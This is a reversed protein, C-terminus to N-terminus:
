PTAVDKPELPQYPVRTLQLFGGSKMVIRAYVDRMAPLSTQLLADTATVNRGEGNGEVRPGGLPYCLLRDAPVQISFNGAVGAPSAFTQVQGNPRAITLVGGASTVTEDAFGLVRAPVNGELVAFNGFIRRVYGHSLHYIVLEGRLLTAPDIGTRVVLVDTRKIDHSPIDINALLADVYNRPQSYVLRILLAFVLLSVIVQARISSFLGNIKGADLIVWTHLAIAAGLFVGSASSGLSLIGLALCLLWAPVIWRVRRPRGSVLHGLGPLVSLVMWLLNPTESLAGTVATAVADPQSWRPLPESLRNVRYALPRLFRTWGARPPYTPGVASVALVSNCRMCYSLGPMNEMGCRRCQM